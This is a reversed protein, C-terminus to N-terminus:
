EQPIQRLKGDGNQEGQLKKGFGCITGDAGIMCAAEHCAYVSVAGINITDAM